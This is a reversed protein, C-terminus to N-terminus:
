ADDNIHQISEAIKEFSKDVVSEGKRQDTVKSWM